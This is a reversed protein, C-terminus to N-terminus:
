NVKRLQTNQQQVQELEWKLDDKVKRQDKELKAVNSEVIFSDLRLIRQAAKLRM